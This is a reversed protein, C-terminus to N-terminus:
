IKTKDLAGTTTGDVTYDELARFQSAYTSWNTATKYSDVLARPVYIYGKKNHIVSWALASSGLSCVSSTRIVLTALSDCDFFANSKIQTAAWLDVTRVNAGYFMNQSVESLKPLIATAMNSYAFAYEGATVLSPLYLTMQADLDFSYYFARADVSTLNPLSVSRLAAKYSMAYAGIYTLDSNFETVSCDLLANLLEDGGGAEVNVEVSAFEAVDHTGNETIAKSGSPIIYGDPIPVDVVVPSFGDVGVPADYTGNETVELPEIVPEAEGNGKSKLVERLEDILNDQETLVVDLDEKGGGAFEGFDTEFGQEIETFVVDAIM